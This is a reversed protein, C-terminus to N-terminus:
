VDVVDLGLEVLHGCGLDVEGSGSDGQSGPVSTFTTERGGLCTTGM